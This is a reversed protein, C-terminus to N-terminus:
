HFKIKWLSDFKDEVKIEKENSDTADGGGENYWNKM